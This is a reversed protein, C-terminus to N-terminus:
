AADHLVGDDDGRCRAWSGLARLVATSTGRAFTEALIEDKSFFGSFPPVGAIALTAIWM